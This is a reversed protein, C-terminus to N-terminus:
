TQITWRESESSTTYSNFYYKITFFDFVWSIRTINYYQFIVNLALVFNKFHQCLMSLRPHHTHRTNHHRRQTRQALSIEDHLTSSCTRERSMKYSLASKCQVFVFAFTIKERQDKDSNLTCM